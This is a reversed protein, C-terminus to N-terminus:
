HLAMKCRQYTVENALLVASLPQKMAEFEHMENFAIVLEENTVKYVIGDASGKDVTNSHRDSQYVGVIDGPSFV